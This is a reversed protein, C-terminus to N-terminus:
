LIGAFANQQASGPFVGKAGTAIDLHQRATDCFPIEISRLAEKFLLVDQIKKNMLKGLGKDHNGIANGHSSAKSQSGAGFRDGRGMARFFSRPIAGDKYWVAVHPAVHKSLFDDFRGMDQSLKEPMKFDM